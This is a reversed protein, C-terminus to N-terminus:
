LINHVVHESNVCTVHRGSNESSSTAKAEDGEFWQDHGLHMDFKKGKWLISSEFSIALKIFFEFEKLISYRSFKSKLGSSYLSSPPAKLSM